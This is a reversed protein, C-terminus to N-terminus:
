KLCYQMILQVRTTPVRHIRSAKYNQAKIMEITIKMKCVEGEAVGSDM